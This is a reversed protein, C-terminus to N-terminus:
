KDMKLQSNDMAFQSNFELEGNFARQMLSNFNDELKKLSKEMEFKLKDAQKVFDAFQNQLQIPPVTIKIESIGTQNITYQGASTKLKNKMQLKGYSNNLLISVYDNNVINTDLRVRIIHDNHYVPEGIEKYYACRGVNNPNGNVRAFLFDGDKLLYRKQEDESLKIRNPSNYDIYGNQLEILRLVINGNNDNGRRALGNNMLLIIEKLQKIKWGKPNKVPDGFMEIFRSKVLEDLLRIAERKKKLADEAKELAQVIENQTELPPIIVKLYKLDNISFSAQNVSKKIIKPLQMKFKVSNFYYYVYKPLIFKKNSRLCLLNMGHIMNLECNEYIATKGLHKESNIHSMLIDGEELLYDSYKGLEYIGAYGVKNIDIRSNAITEIRTIPYGGQQKGQKINAGNRILLFVKGLRDVKWGEPLKRNKM